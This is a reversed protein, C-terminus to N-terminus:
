QYNARVRKARNYWTMLDQYILHFRKQYTHCRKDVDIDYFGDVGEELECVYEYNELLVMYNLDHCEFFSDPTNHFYRYLVKYFRKDMYCIYQNPLVILNGKRCNCERCLPILNYLSDVGKYGKFLSKPLFHDKSYNNKNLYCGCRACLFGTKLAIQIDKQKM